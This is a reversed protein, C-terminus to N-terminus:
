QGHLTELPSVVGLFKEEVPKVGSSFVADQFSSYLLVVCASSFTGTLVGIGHCIWLCFLWFAFSFINFNM